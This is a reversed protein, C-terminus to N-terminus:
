FERFELIVEHVFYDKHTCVFNEELEKPPNRFIIDVDSKSIENDNQSNYIEVVLDKHVMGYLNTLAIIYQNLKGM